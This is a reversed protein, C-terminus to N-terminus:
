RKNQMKLLWARGAPSPSFFTLKYKRLLRKAGLVTRTLPSIATSTAVVSRAADDELDCTHSFYARRFNKATFNIRNFIDPLFAINSRKLLRCFVPLYQHM